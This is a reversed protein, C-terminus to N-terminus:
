VQQGFWVWPAHTPKEEDRFAATRRTSDCDWWLLLSSHAVKPQRRLAFAFDPLLNPYRRVHRLREFATSTCSLTLIRPPRASSM